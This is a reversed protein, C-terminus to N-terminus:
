ACQHKIGAPESHCCTYYMHRDIWDFSVLDCARSIFLDDSKMKFIEERLLIFYDYQKGAEFVM